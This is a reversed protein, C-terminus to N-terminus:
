TSLWRISDILANNKEHNRIQEKTLWDTKKQRHYGLLKMLTLELLLHLHDMAIPLVGQPLHMVTRGHAFENRFWYLNTMGSKCVPWLDDMELPFKQSFDRYIPCFKDGNKKRMWRKVLGELAAFCNLFRAEMSQKTFPHIAFVALRVADKQDGSLGHWTQSAIRIFSRLESADVLPGCAEEETTARPRVLPELWNDRIVNGHVHVTRYIHVRHRAALSILTGIDSATQTLQESTLEAGGEMLKLVTSASAAIHSASHKQWHWHKQLEWTSLTTGNADLFDFPHSTSPMTSRNGDKDTKSFNSSLAYQLDSFTVEFAFQQSENIFRRSILWSRVHTITLRVGGTHREKPDFDIQRILPDIAEFSIKKQDEHGTLRNISLPGPKETGVQFLVVEIRGNCNIDWPLWLAIRSLIKEGETTWAYGDFEEDPKSIHGATFPTM